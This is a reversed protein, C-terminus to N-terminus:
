EDGCSGCGSFAADTEFASQRPPFFEDVPFSIKEFLNCPDDVTPVFKSAGHM